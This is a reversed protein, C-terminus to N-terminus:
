IHILSLHFVSRILEIFEFVIYSCNIHDELPIHDIRESFNLFVEALGDRIFHLLNNMDDSDLHDFYARVIDHFNDRRYSCAISIDIFSLFEDFQNYRRKWKDDEMEEEQTFEVYQRKISSLGWSYVCRYILRLYEVSHNTVMCAFTSYKNLFELSIGELSASKALDRDPQFLSLDAWFDAQYRGTQPNYTAAQVNKPTEPNSKQLQSM